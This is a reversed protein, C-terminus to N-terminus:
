KLETFSFVLHNPHPLHNYKVKVQLLKTIDGTGIVKTTSM